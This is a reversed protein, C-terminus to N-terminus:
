DITEKKEAVRCADCVGKQDFALTVKKSDKTHAFEKTSGPRQNSYCCRKCFTVENPLGYLAELADSKKNM